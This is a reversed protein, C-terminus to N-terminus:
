FLFKYYASIFVFSLAANKTAIKEIELFWQDLVSHNERRHLTILVETNYSTELNILNDLATNGVVFADGVVKEAMLNNKSLHTPCLNVDAIRSICQRYIEEPYPHNRSHTRLGAELHIVKKNKNFAALACALASATDGQVLVHTCENMAAELKRSDLLSSFILNLRSPHSAELKLTYDPVFSDSLLDTHQGTCFTKSDPIKNVLPLIKILEPRTGYCFLIKM